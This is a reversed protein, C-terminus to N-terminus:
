NTVAPEVKNKEQNDEGNIKKVEHPVKDKTFKILGPNFAKGVKRVPTAAASGLNKGFHRFGHKVGGVQKGAKFNSIGIVTAGLALGALGAIGARSALGSNANKFTAFNLKDTQQSESDSGSLNSALGSLNNGSGARKSKAFGIARGTMKAAGMAMMGGAMTSRMSNMGERVGASEGVFSAIIDAFAMTALGGGCLFLILFLSRTFNGTALGSLGSSLLIQTVSIFIYYGILTGTSALFKAVVMDKWIFAAKGDDVVMVIMVIPSIVFLFFLEIVKQVLTIGIMFIAFLMFWTGFLQAIMNYQKINAPPGFDAPVGDATGDWNKDGIHWLYQAINSNNGFNNIVTNALSQVIFNAIFFFIPILFMFGFAKIANQIALVFKTKTETAEKFLLILMQIVFILSFICLAVVVFWWFQVPINNWQFNKQSGFLLDNIIGGTLYELVNTFVAILNLPGQVFIMWVLKLIANVIM